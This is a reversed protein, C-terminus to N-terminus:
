MQWRYDAKDPGPEDSRQMSGGFRELVDGPVWDAPDVGPAAEITTLRYPAGLRRPATLRRRLRGRIIARLEDPNEASYQREHGGRGLRGYRVAVTWSNFLDRGLRLEYRRHHDREDHHAEFALTLLNDM